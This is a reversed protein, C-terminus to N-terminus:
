FPPPVLTRYRPNDAVPPQEVPLPTRLKRETMQKDILFQTVEMLKKLGGAMKSNSYYRGDVVLTPVNVVSYRRILFEDHDAAHKVDENEAAARCQDETVGGAKMFLECIDGLTDMNKKQDQVSKFMLPHIRKVIGLNEAMHYALTHMVGVPRGMTHPVRKFSVEEPKRALWPAISSEFEYCYPCGYWFFEEVDVKRPNPHTEPNPVQKYHVGETFESGAAQVSLFLLSLLLTNRILRTM